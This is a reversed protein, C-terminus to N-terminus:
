TTPFSVVKPINADPLGRLEKTKKTKMTGISPHLIEALKEEIHRIGALRVHRPVTM